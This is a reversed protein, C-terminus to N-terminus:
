PNIQVHGILAAIVKSGAELLGYNKSVFTIGKEIRVLIKALAEFESLDKNPEIIERNAYMIGVTEGVAERLRVVGRIRYEHIGQRLKELADLLFEKLETPLSSSIVSEYLENIDKLIEQIEDNPIKNENYQSYHSLQDEIFNLPVLNRTIITYSVSWTNSLENLNVISKLGLIPKTYLDRNLNETQLLAIEVDRILERLEILRSIVEVLAEESNPQEIKFVQCWAVRVTMPNNVAIEHSVSQAKVLIEQLRSAPNSKDIENNM